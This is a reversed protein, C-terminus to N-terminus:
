SGSDTHPINEEYEELTETDPAAEANIKNAPIEEAPIEVTITTGAGLTSSVSIKGGLRKARESMGLLGFHGENPGLCNEPSFGNGNDKVVLTIKDSRFELELLLRTAGSHKVTNTIAEQGIGPLGKRKGVHVIEADRRVRGLIESSVLDDTFVIDASQLAHFAKLTLLDPDGPGAGILYVARRRM